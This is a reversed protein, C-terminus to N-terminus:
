LCLGSVTNVMCVCVAAIGANQKILRSLVRSCTLCCQIIVDYCHKVVDSIPVCLDVSRIDYEWPENGSIQFCQRSVRLHLM